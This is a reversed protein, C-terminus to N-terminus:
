APKQAAPRDPGSPNAAVAYWDVHRTAVMAAALASFVLIAGALLAHDGARLLVYLLGYLSSLLAAFGAGRQFSGLAYQILDINGEVTLTGPLLAVLSHEIKEKRVTRSHGGDDTTTADASRRTWPVYLM